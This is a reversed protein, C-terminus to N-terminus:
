STVLLTLLVELLKKHYHIIPILLWRVKKFCCLKGEEYEDVGEMNEALDEGPADNAILEEEQIDEINNSKKKSMAAKRKSRAKELTNQKKGAYGSSITLM